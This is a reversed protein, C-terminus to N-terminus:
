LLKEVIAVVKKIGSGDTLLACRSSMEDLLAPHENIYDFQNILESQIADISWLVIAAGRQHLNEAIVNQNEAVVVMITPIGLACREWASSGAAGIALDHQSLLKAMESTDIIIRSKWPIELSLKEVEALWPSKGGMIITIECNNPIKCKKLSHLVKATANAQDIGGMSIIISRMKSRTKNLLSDYRFLNFENRLLSFEPGLLLECESPVLPSYDTAVRGVNQDILLDCNHNRNALDDIVCVKKIKKRLLNEWRVDLAYHDVICIDANLHKICNIVEKADQEPTCGLWKEYGKLLDSASSVINSLVICQHGRQKIVDIINGRHPRTIFYSAIDRTQLEDALTLCRMVHGTGIDLSADARIIAVRPLSM